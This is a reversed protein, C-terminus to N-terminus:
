VIAGVDVPLGAIRMEKCLEIRWDSNPMDTATYVVGHYDSPLEVGGRYLVHVRERGLRGLFYGLELVVNQRARPRLEHGDRMARGEDDPTLLCVAFQVASYQEIKEIITKGASPVSKLVIPNLGVRLLLADVEALLSGDHGHVVFVSRMTRQTGASSDVSLGTAGALDLAYTVLGAAKLEELCEVVDRHRSSRGTLGALEGLESFSLSVADDGRAVLAWYLRQAGAKV